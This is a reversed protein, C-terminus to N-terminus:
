HKSGSSSIVSTAPRNELDVILAAHDSLAERRQIDEPDSGWVYRAAKISAGLEPSGFAYDLRFGNNRHSYWSYERKDGHLHRFADIWGRDEFGTIWDHERYFRAPQPSEEDIGRKGCNADGILLTLGLDQGDIM